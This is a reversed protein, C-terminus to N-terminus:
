WPSGCPPPKPSTRRGASSLTSRRLRDHESPKGTVLERLCGRQVESVADRWDNGLAQHREDGRPKRQGDLSHLGRFLSISLSVGSRREYRIDRTRERSVFGSTAPVFTVIVSPPPLCARTQIHM